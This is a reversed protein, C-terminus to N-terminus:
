PASSSSAQASSDSVNESSIQVDDQKREEPISSYRFPAPETMPPLSMKKAEMRETKNYKTHFVELLSDLEERRRKITHELQKIKYLFSVAPEKLSALHEQGEKSGAFQIDELHKDIRDRWQKDSKNQSMRHGKVLETLQSNAYKADKITTPDFVWPCWKGVAGLLVDFDPDLSHYYEILEQGEEETECMDHLKFGYVDHKQRSEPSIMSAVFFKKGPLPPNDHLVTRKNKRYAM